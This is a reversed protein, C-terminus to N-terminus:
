FARLSLSVVVVIHSLEPPSLCSFVSPPPSFNIGRSSVLLASVVILPDGLSAIQPVVFYLCLSLSHWVIFCHPSLPLRLLLFHVVRLFSLLCCVFTTSCPCFLSFLAICCESSCRLSYKPSPLFFFECLIVDLAPRLPLIFSSVLCLFDVVSLPISLFRVSM